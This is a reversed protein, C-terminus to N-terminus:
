RVGVRPVPGRRRVQSVALGLLIVALAGLFQGPLEEGLLLVGFVVAFVPVQYNVLSLFSPGANQINATTTRM